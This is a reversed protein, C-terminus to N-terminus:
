VITHSENKCQSEHTYMYYLTIVHSRTKRTHTEDDDGLKQVNIVYDLCVVYVIYIKM